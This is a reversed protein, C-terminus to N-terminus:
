EIGNRVKALVHISIKEGSYYLKKVTREAKTVSTMMIGQGVFRAKVAMFAKRGDNETNIASIAGDALDNSKVFKLLLTLVRGNDIVYADGNLPAMNIYMQLFDEHPTPDGAEHDRIVYSLPVGNRGVLCRLYKSFM